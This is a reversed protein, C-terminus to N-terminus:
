GQRWCNGICIDEAGNSRIEMRDDNSDYVMDVNSSGVNSINNGNLDLNANTIDIDATDMGTTVTFRDTDAGGSDKTEIEVPYTSDTKIQFADEGGQGSTSVEIRRGNGWDIGEDNGPKQQRRRYKDFYWFLM